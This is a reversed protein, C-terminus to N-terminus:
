NDMVVDTCSDKISQLVKDLLEHHYKPQRKSLVGSTISPRSPGFIKFLHNRVKAICRQHENSPTKAVVGDTSSGFVYDSFQFPLPESCLQPWARRDEQQDLSALISEIASSYHDEFNSLGSMSKKLTLLHILVCEAMYFSLM